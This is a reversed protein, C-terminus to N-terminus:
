EAHKDPGVIKLSLYISSKKNKIISNEVQCFFIVSKRVLSNLIQVLDM